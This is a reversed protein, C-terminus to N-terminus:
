LNLEAEALALRRRRSEAAAEDQKQGAKWAEFSRLSVEPADTYAPSTVPGVQRLTAGKRKITRTVQGDEEVWRDGGEKVLFEFSSGTIDGRGVSERLDRAATTDPLKVSYRLGVKEDALDLTGASTRGIIKSNDHEVTSIIDGSLNEFAGREFIERFGPLAGEASFTDWPPATGILTAGEDDGDARLEPKTDHFYRREIESM